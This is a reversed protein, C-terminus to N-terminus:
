WPPRRGGRPPRPPSATARNRAIDTLRPRDVYRETREIGRGQAAGPRRTAPRPRVSRACPRSATRPAAPRACGRAPPGIAAYRRPRTPRPRPARVPGSAPAPGLRGASRPRAGTRVGAALHGRAAPPATTAPADPAPGAATPQKRPSRRRPAGIAGRGPGCGGPAGHCRPSGRRDRGRRRSWGLAGRHPRAPPTAGDGRPPSERRRLDTPRAPGGGPRIGPIGHGSCLGIGRHGSRADLLKASWSASCSAASPSASSGGGPDALREQHHSRFGPSALTVERDSAVVQPGREACSTRGPASGAASGARGASRRRRPDAGHRRAPQGPVRPPRHRGRARARAM